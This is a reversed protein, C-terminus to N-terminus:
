GIRRSETFFIDVREVTPDFPSAFSEVSPTINELIQPKMRINVATAIVGAGVNASAVDFSNPNMRLAYPPSTRAKTIPM